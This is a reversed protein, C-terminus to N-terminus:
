DILNGKGLERVYRLPDREREEKQKEGNGAQREVHKGRELEEKRQKVHM